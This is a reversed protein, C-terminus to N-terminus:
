KRKKAAAERKQIKMKEKFVKDVAKKLYLELETKGALDSSSGAADLESAKLRRYQRQVSGRPTVAGTRSAPKSSPKMIRCLPFSVAGCDVVGVHPFRISQDLKFIHFVTLRYTIM